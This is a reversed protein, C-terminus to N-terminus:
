PAPERNFDCVYQLEGDRVPEYIFHQGTLGYPLLHSRTSPPLSFVAQHILAPGSERDAYTYIKLSAREAPESQFVPRFLFYSGIRVAPALYASATPLAEIRRTEGGYTVECIVGAHAQGLLAPVCLVAALGVKYLSGQNFM